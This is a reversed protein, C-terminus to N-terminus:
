LINDLLRWNAWHAALNNGTSTHIRTMNIKRAQSSPASQVPRICLDMLSSLRSFRISWCCSMLTVFTPVTAEIRINPKRYGRAMVQVTHRGGTDWWPSLQRLCTGNVANAPTTYAVTSIHGRFDRVQLKIKKKKELPKDWRELPKKKEKHKFNGKTLIM